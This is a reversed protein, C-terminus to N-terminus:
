GRAAEESVLSETAHEKADACHAGGNAPHELTPNGEVPRQESPKEGDRAEGGEAVPSVGVPARGDGGGAACEDEPGERADEAPCWRLVGEGSRWGGGGAGGGGGGRRARMMARPRTM